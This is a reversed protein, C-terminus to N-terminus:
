LLFIFLNASCYLNVDCNFNTSCQLFMGNAYLTESITTEAEISGSAKPLTAISAWDISFGIIALSIPPDLSVIRFSIVPNKNSDPLGIVKLLFIISTMFRSLDLNFDIPM